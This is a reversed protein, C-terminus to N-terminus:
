QALLELAEAFRAGFDIYGKSDYHWPDSYSYGDTSTVIAAAPDSDVFAQQAARIVPSDDAVLIKM